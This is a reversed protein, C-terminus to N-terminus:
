LMQVLSFDRRWYKVNRKEAHAAALEADDVYTGGRTEIGANAMGFRLREEYALARAVPSMLQLLNTGEVTVLLRSGEVKASAIRLIPESTAPAKPEPKPEPKAVTKAATAAKVAERMKSM